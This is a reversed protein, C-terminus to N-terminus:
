QYFGDYLAARMGVPPQEVAIPAPQRLDCQMSQRARDVGLRWACECQSALSAYGAAPLQIDEARLVKTDALFPCKTQYAGTGAATSQEGEASNERRTYLGSAYSIPRWTL